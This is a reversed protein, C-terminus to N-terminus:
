HARRMRFEVVFEDVLMSLEPDQGLRDLPAGQLEIARRALERFIQAARPTNEVTGLVAERFAALQVEEEYM